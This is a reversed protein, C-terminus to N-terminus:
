KGMFHNHLLDHKKNFSISKVLVSNGEREEDFTGFSQLYSSVDDNKFRYKKFAIFEDYRNKVEANSDLCIVDIKKLNSSSSIASKLLYKIYNDSSPLSYGLIRIENAKAIESYALIWNKRIQEPIIKISIPPVISKDSICGHLKAFKIDSSSKTGFFTKNSCFFHANLHSLSQEIILDYNFSIISYASDCRNFKVVINKRDINGTSNYSINNYHAGLLGSFFRLYLGWYNHTQFIDYHWNRPNYDLIASNLKPTHYDIVASIFEIFKQREARAGTSSKMDLISLIEEINELDSHYYTKCYAIDGIKDFIYKFEKYKVPDEEHMDKAKELFNSMVPLGLPASFGAGLIYVVKNM